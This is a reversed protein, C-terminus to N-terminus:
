RALPAVTVLADSNAWKAIRMGCFDDISLLLRDASAAPFCQHDPDFLAGDVEAYAYFGLRNLSFLRLEGPRITVSSWIGSHIRSRNSTCKVPSGIDFIQRRKSGSPPFPECNNVRLLVQLM